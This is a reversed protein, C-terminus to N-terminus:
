IEAGRHRRNLRGQVPIHVTHSESASFRLVAAFRNFIQDPYPGCGGSVPWSPRKSTARFPLLGFRNRATHTTKKAFSSRCKQSRCRHMEHPFAHTAFSAFVQHKLSIAVHSQGFQSDERPRDVCRVIREKARERKEQKRGPAARVCPLRGKSTGSVSAPIIGDMDLVHIPVCNKDSISSISGPCRM